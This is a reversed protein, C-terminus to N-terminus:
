EVGVGHALGEGVGVTRAVAEGVTDNQLLPVPLVSGEKLVCDDPLARGEDLLACLALLLPPVGEGDGQTEAEVARLRLAGSLRLARM